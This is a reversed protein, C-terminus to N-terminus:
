IWRSYMQKLHYIRIKHWNSAPQEVMNTFSARPTAMQFMLHPWLNPPVTATEQTDTLHEPQETKSSPHWRRLDDTKGLNAAVPLCYQPTSSPQFAYRLMTTFPSITVWYRYCLTFSCERMEWDDSIQCPRESLSNQEMTCGYVTSASSLDQPRM